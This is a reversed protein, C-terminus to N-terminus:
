DEIEEADVTLNGDDGAGAAADAAGDGNSEGFCTGVDDDGRAARLLDCGHCHLHTSEPTSGELHGAVQLLRSHRLLEGLSCDGLETAEIDPDVVGTAGVISM